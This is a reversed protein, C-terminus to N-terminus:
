SKRMPQLATATPTFSRHMNKLNCLILIGGTFLLTIVVLTLIWIGLDSRLDNKKPTGRFGDDRLTSHPDRHHPTSQYDDDDPATHRYFREDNHTVPNNFTSRYEDGHPTPRHHRYGNQTTPTYDGYPPTRKEHVHSVSGGVTVVIGLRTLNRLVDAPRPPFCLLDIRSMTVYKCPRDAPNRQFRVDLEDVTFGRGLGRGNIKLVALSDNRVNLEFDAFVPDPHIEIEPLRTERFWFETQEASFKTSLEVILKLPHALLSKEWDFKPLQCRMSVQTIVHCGPGCVRGATNYVCVYYTTHTSRFNSGTVTINTGGSAIGELRQGPELRPGDVYEFTKTGPGRHVSFYRGDFEVEILGAAAVRGPGTTCTIVNGSRPGTLECASVNGISVRAAAGADLFEGSVTLLSGGELPGYAPRVDTVAPRVFKVTQPSTVILTPSSGYRVVAPGEVEPESPTGAVTCVITEDGETKPGNCNRGAVTVVVTQNEALVRHNVVAITVTADGAISARLPEVARVRIVDPCAVRVTQNAAASPVRKRYDDAYKKKYYKYPGTCRNRSSCLKLYHMYENDTWLCVACDADAADGCDHDYVAFYYDASNDFRLTVNNFTVYFDYQLPRKNETFIDLSANKVSRCVIKNKQVVAGICRDLCCIIKTKNIMSVFGITDNLIDVANYFPVNVFASKRVSSFRPCHSEDRVTLGITKRENASRNACTQREMSWDCPQAACRACTRLLSCDVSRPESSGDGTARSFMMLVMAIRLCQDISFRKFYLLENNGFGVM